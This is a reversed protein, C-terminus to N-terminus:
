DLCEPLEEFEEDLAGVVEAMNRFNKFVEDAMTPFDATVQEGYGNLLALIRKTTALMVKRYEMPDTIRGNKSFKLRQMQLQSISRKTIADLENMTDTKIPVREIASSIISMFNTGTELLWSTYDALKASATKFSTSPKPTSPETPAKAPAKPVAAKTSASM